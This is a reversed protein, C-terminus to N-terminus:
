ESTVGKFSNQIIIRQSSVFFSLIHSEFLRYDPKSSAGMSMADNGGVMQRQAPFNSMPPNADGSQDM